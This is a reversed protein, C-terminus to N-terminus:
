GGEATNEGCSAIFGLDKLLLRWAQIERDPEILPRRAAVLARLRELYAADAAARMLLAALAKEDQVPYYAPYDGGLMGRNGAIDSAIVPVGHAIAESVVHAGGEMRSSIVMVHSRALLKMAQWHPIEGLWRYRPDQAMLRRAEREMEPAMAKGAQVLRVGAREPLYRLALACRFPDKEDRLHGLVSVSFFRRPPSWPWRALESQYIVHLKHRLCPNLEDPAAEQLAVLRHALDLSEQAQPTTHIDRYLDTGTLALVTPVQPHATRFSQLSDHSRRAHLAVFLDCAAGRWATDIEVRYGLGRLIRAWRVATNRNGSRSGPAAPTVIVIRKARMLSQLKDRIACGNHDSGVIEGAGPGRGFFQRARQAVAIGGGQTQDASEAALLPDPRVQRYDIRWQPLRAM